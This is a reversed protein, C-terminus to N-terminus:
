EKITAKIQIMQSPRKPDNSFISVSKFQKGEKGKSDFTVTLTTKEGSALTDKELNTQVCDCNTKLSRINLDQKGNNILTFEVTVESDKVVKGFDHSKKEFSLKPALALEAETMPEFYEEITSVVYITKISDVPESTKVTVENTIYGLDEIRTPDLTINIIGKEKPQLESPEFSLSLHDPTRTSDITFLLVSDSDNYVDFSKTVVKETAIKGMNFSRYKIRIAGLRTGLGKEVTRIKPAVHGSIFLSIASNSASSTVLLSKAFAGPRNITNYLATVLGSDGPLIEGETWYPTTCGCSAKVNIIKMPVDGTNVFSFSYEASGDIEKIQGFDHTEKEFELRGQGALNIAIVTLYTFIIYRM